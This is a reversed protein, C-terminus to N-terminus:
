FSTSIMDDSCFVVVRSVELLDFEISSNFWDEDREKILVM